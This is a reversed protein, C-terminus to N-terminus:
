TLFFFFVNLTSFPQVVVLLGANFSNVAAILVCHWGSLSDHYLRAPHASLRTLSIFHLAKWIARVKQGQFIVHLLTNSCLIEKRSKHTGASWGPFPLGHRLVCVYSPSRKKSNHHVWACTCWWDAGKLGKFVSTVCLINDIRYHSFHFCANPVLWVELQLFSVYKCRLNQNCFTHYESFAEM